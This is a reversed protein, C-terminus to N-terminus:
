TVMTNATLHPRRNYNNCDVIFIDFNIKSETIENHSTFNNLNVQQQVLEGDEKFYRLTFNSTSVIRTLFFLLNNQLKTVM